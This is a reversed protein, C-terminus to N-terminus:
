KCKTQKWKMGFKYKKLHKKMQNGAQKLITSIVSVQILKLLCASSLWLCYLSSLSLYLCRSFYKFLLFFPILLYTCLLRHLLKLLNGHLVNCGAHKIKEYWQWCHFASVCRFNCGWGQKLRKIQRHLHIVKHLDACKQVMVLLIVQLSSFM